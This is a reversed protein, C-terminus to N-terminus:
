FIPARGAMCRGDRGAAVGTVAWIKPVHRVGEGYQRGGLTEPWKKFGRAPWLTGSLFVKLYGLDVSISSGGWAQGKTKAAKESQGGRRCNNAYGIKRMGSPSKWKWIKKEM